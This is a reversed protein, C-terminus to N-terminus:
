KEAKIYKVDLIKEIKLLHVTRSELEDEKEKKIFEGIKKKWVSIDIPYLAERKLINMLGELNEKFNVFGGDRPVYTVVQNEFNLKGLFYEGSM